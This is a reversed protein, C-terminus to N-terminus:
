RFGPSPQSCRSKPDQTLCEREAKLLSECYLYSDSHMSLLTLSASIACLAHAAIPSNKFINGPAEM